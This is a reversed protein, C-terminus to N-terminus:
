VDQSLRAMLPECLALGIPTLATTKRLPEELLKVQTAVVPENSAIYQNNLVGHRRCLRYFLLINAFAHYSLVIRSLSRGTRKIPSYYLTADSGDDLGGLWRLAHMYQHSAEHVLSEALFAWNPAFSMHILGSEEASSGSRIRGPGHELLVVHRLVRLIWRLYTPAYRHLQTLSQQCATSTETHVEGLASSRLPKLIDGELAAAPLLVIREGRTGFTLMQQLATGAGKWGVPTRRFVCQTREGSLNMEIRCFKGDCHVELEDCAPLLWHAWRFRVPANLSVFWDGATGTSGLHLALSAAVTALRPSSGLNAIPYIEGWTMDWAAPFSAEGGLWTQLFEVLGRSTARLSVGCSNLFLGAVQRAHEAALFALFPEHFPEDPCAFGRYLRILSAREAASEM